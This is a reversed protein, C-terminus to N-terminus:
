VLPVKSSSAQPSNRLALLMRTPSDISPGASRCSLYRYWLCCFGIGGLMLGLGAVGNELAMQLFGNEAHTYTSDMREMVGADFAWNPGPRDDLCNETKWWEENCIFFCDGLGEVPAIAFIYDTPKESPVFM